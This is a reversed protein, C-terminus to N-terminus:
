LAFRELRHMKGPDKVQHMARQWAQEVQQKAEQAEGSAAAKAGRKKEEETSVLQMVQGSGPTILAHFPIHRGEALVLEDFEVKIKRAPSFEANLIGLTRDKRSIPDINTIQGNVETGPPIVVRDFAYVPYVIRGHLKQGAKKIRVEQDLVIELPTDKPVTLEITPPLAT